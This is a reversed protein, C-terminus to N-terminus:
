NFFIIKLVEMEVKVLIDMKQCMELMGFDTQGASLKLKGCLEGLVKKGCM